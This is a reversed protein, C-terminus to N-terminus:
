VAPVEPLPRRTWRKWLTYLRVVLAAMILRPVWLWFANLGMALFFAPDEIISHNAGISLHLEQLEDRSLHGEKAEEIMVASGYVLGFFAGTLWLLGVKESLGFVRLLPALWKVIPNIWALAKLIELIILLGMMILFLKVALYAMSISWIRLMRLLPESSPMGVSGSIGTETALFPAVIMVTVVAMGLRFFVAKLPHFGSKGQIVGEQILNHAILMFIAMLTMQERSFPLMAMSAIGGYIGAICGVLLPVAAMAPLHLWSMLPQIFVDMRNIWGSWELLATLLSIPLLIRLSWVFGSWGKRVGSSLGKKLLSHDINMM